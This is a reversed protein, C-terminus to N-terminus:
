RLGFTFKPTPMFTPAAFVPSPISRGPVTVTPQSPLPIASINVSSNRLQLLEVSTMERGSLLFAVRLEQELVFSITNKSLPHAFYYFLLNLFVTKTDFLYNPFRVEHSHKDYQPQASISQLQDDTLPTAEPTKLLQVFPDM